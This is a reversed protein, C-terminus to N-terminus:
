QISFFGCRVQHCGSLKGGTFRQCLAPGFVLMAESKLFRWAMACLTKGL